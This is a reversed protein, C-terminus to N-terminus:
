ARPRKEPIERSEVPPTPAPTATAPVSLRQPFPQSGENGFRFPHAVPNPKVNAVVFRAPDVRHEADGRGVLIQLTFQRFVELIQQSPDFGGPRLRRVFLQNVAHDALLNASQTVFAVRAVPPATQEFEAVPLVPQM